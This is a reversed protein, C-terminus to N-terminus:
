LLAIKDNKSTFIIIDNKCNFVIKHNKFSEIHGNFTTLCSMIIEIIQLYRSFTAEFQGFFNTFSFWLFSHYLMIVLMALPTFSPHFLYYKSICIIVIIYLACLKQGILPYGLCNFFIIVPQLCSVPLFNRWPVVLVTCFMKHFHTRFNRLFINRAWIHLFIHSCVLLSTHVQLGLQIYVQVLGPIQLLM